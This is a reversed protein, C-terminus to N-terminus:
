RALVEQYLKAIGAYARDWTYRAQLKGWGAHGLRQAEESDVVLRRIAAALTPVDGFPVLLGNQGHDIVAPVGGARAGIVPKGHRWAELYVLGFSDVRSPMALLTCARLLGQKEEESVVGRLQVRGRVGPPLRDYYHRYQDTVTGALVLEVPLGEAWLRRLAETLHVVGKEYTVAGLFLATAAHDGRPSEPAPACDATVPIGAHLTHVREPALGRALLFAREIDSLAVVAAARQMLAVQHPMAYGRAVAPDSEEGIHLFPTVLFPVGIRAAYDAAPKLMSEFPIAFGHVLDVPETHRALAIDLAPVWPTFRALGWLLSEPVAPVQALAVTLRRLLYYAVPSPPLHRLPLREVVVGNIREVGAPLARKSANWVREVEGGNTTLVTVRHGDGVLSEALLQVYTQAGGVFPPYGINTFLFRLSM